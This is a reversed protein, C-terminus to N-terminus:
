PVPEATSRWRALMQRATPSPPPTNRGIGYAWFVAGRSGIKLSYLNRRGERKAVTAGDDIVAWRILDGVLGRYFEFDDYLLPAVQGVAFPVGGPYQSHVATMSDTELTDLLQGSFTLYRAQAAVFRAAREQGILGTQGESWFDVLGRDYAAVNYNLDFPEAKLPAPGWAWFYGHPNSEAQAMILDDFVLKAARAYQEDGTERYARLMLPVLMVARNPWLRRLSSRLQEWDLPTGGLTALSFDAWDVLAQRYALGRHRALDDLHFHEQFRLAVPVDVAAYAPNNHWGEGGGKTIGELPDGGAATHRRIMDIAAAASDIPDACRHLIDAVQARDGQHLAAPLVTWAQQHSGAVARSSQRLSFQVLLEALEEEDFPRDLWGAAAGLVQRIGAEAEAANEGVGAVYQRYLWDDRSQWKVFSLADELARIREPPWILAGDKSRADTPVNTLKGTGLLTERLDTVEALDFGRDGDLLPHFLRYIRPDTLEYRWNLALLGDGLGKTKETTVVECAAPASANFPNNAHGVALPTDAFQQVAVLAAADLQHLWWPQEWLPKHIERPRRLTEWRALSLGGGLYGDAHDLSFGSLAVCAGEPFLWWTCQWHMPAGARGNTQGRLTLRTVIGKEIEVAFPRAPDAYTRDAISGDKGASKDGVQFGAYRFLERGRWHLVIRDPLDDLALEGAAATLRQAVREGAVSRRSPATQPTRYVRLTLKDKGFPPVRHRVLYIAACVSDGWQGAAEDRAALASGLEPLQQQAADLRRRRMHLAEPAHGPHHNLIAYRRGWHPRGQRAVEWTVSDWVFCPVEAGRSDFFRVAWPDSVEGPEFKARVFSYPSDNGAQVLHVPIDLKAVAPDEGRAPALSLLVTAFLRSMAIFRNM